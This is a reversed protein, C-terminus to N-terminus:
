GAVVGGMQEDGLTYLRRVSSSDNMHSAVVKGVLIVHDGAEMEGELKCEFNAVADALLVCDILTAPQTKTRAVGLKDTDRGSRTGHFAADAAMTTSPLSIVFEKAQRIAELTYRTKALAIAMMPPEHSVLSTWGLTIPNYKGHQDRAIAIVVQEPHRRAAAKEYSTEIQMTHGEVGAWMTVDLDVLNDNKPLPRQEVTSWRGVACSSFWRETTRKL